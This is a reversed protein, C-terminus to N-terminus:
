TQNARKVIKVVQALTSQETQSLVKILVTDGHLAGKAKQPPVFFDPYGEVSCFSFGKASGSIKGQLLASKQGQKGKTQEYRGKAKQSSKFTKFERKDNKQGKGKAQHKNNKITQQKKM